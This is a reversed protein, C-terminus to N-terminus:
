FTACLRVEGERRLSQTNAEAIGLNLRRGFDENGRLLGGGALSERRCSLGRSAHGSRALFAGRGPLPKDHAFSVCPHLLRDGSDTTWAVRGPTGKRVLRDKM